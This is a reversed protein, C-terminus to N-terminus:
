PALAHQDAIRRINKVGFIRVPVALSIYFLHEESAEIRAIWLMPRIPVVIAEIVPKVAGIAVTATLHSRRDGFLFHADVPTIKTKARVGAVELRLAAHCLKTPVAIIPSIPEAVVIGFPEPMENEALM